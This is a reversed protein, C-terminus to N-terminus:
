AACSRVDNRFKLQCFWLRCKWKSRIFHDKKHSKKGCAAAMKIYEQVKKKGRSAITCRYYFFFFFVEITDSSRFMIVAPNFGADQLVYRWLRIKAVCDWGTRKFIVLMQSTFYNGSCIDMKGVMNLSRTSGFLLDGSLFFFCCFHTKRELYCGLEPFSYMLVVVLSSCVDRQRM